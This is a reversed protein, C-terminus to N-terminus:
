LNNVCKKFKTAAEGIAIIMNCDLNLAQNIGEQVEDFTAGLTGKKVFDDVGHDLIIKEKLEPRESIKDSAIKQSASSAPVIYKSFELVKNFIELDGEAGSESSITIVTTIDGYLKKFERLVTEVGAPNHAFDVVVDKEGITAVKEMRGSVGGFTAISELIKDYPLKLFEHAAVIVGVVNYVNHIGELLMKVELKEDPTHLEFTRNKLNINTAIYDLQPTTLGCECLYYGSGSIIEKVDITKGCVCEKSAVGVPMEDVGFTIIEGEFNLERLLGMITPDQGNVILQKGALGKIFEAKVHAYEMFGGLDNLHDPTINTILGSTLESNGVIREITGPVGFTGVELIGVDGNLRSQLIPIYEANGQMKELNHEVPAINNDYAIKQSASSAPVIYKSFELVKNFIELDGEAGSESSITIVTTIDGYLKKFERLVTEVGAPNHAFDVVVDKEGITAVKEMRGSVGGFTAISELIKDYPLKLFEHAAVIVGVVNYVNHIGELLMKVELKEDPTHLEFTRNKLNINTAIYDLQPTTLGCECLYYGSGSIIEKVDITKGCVCEKSAVGVPMEDVGFTIIEGEFNLERLLGMITPDQGNVILQKGALGKIFEAKVHAYEMFGGLDNLHDPTINTILGSTLESNGVIREITGPVGFTGVELIGVDGNLRSQLIPIYEANGQMKELNHEVPAINNDYAIKKLLTTTTTKGNTGTIGFVPKNVKFIDIIDSVELVPINKEQIIDFVEATKPLSIPPIIYDAKEFFEEPHSEYFVEIDYGELSKKFRCDDGSSMDTGIVDFGRDKLIRAVLNCNAGCIGIVGFTTDEPFDSENM